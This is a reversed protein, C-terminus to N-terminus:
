IFKPPPYNSFCLLAFSSAEEDWFEESSIHRFTFWVLIGVDVYLSMWKVAAQPLSIIPHPHSRWICFVTLPFWTLIVTPRCAIFVGSGPVIDCGQTPIGAEAYVLSTFQPLDKLRDFSWSWWQCFLSIILGLNGPNYYLDSLTFHIICKVCHMTRLLYM